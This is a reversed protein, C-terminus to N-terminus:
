AGTTWRAAKAVNAPHIANESMGQCVASVWAIATRMTVQGQAKASATGTTWTTALPLSIRFPTRSFDPSASSANAATSVNTNSLVPVSVRPWGSSTTSPPHVATSRRKAAVSAADLRWGSARARAAIAGAALVALPTASVGPAPREKVVGSPSARSRRARHM